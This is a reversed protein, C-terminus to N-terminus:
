APLMTPKPFRSSTIYLDPVIEETYFQIENMGTADFVFDIKFTLTLVCLM